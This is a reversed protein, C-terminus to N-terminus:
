YNILQNDAVAVLVFEEISITCRPSKKASLLVFCFYNIQQKNCCKFEYEYLLLSGSWLTCEAM